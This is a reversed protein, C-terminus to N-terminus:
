KPPDANPQPVRELYFFVTASLVGSAIFANGVIAGAKLWSDDAPLAWVVGVGFYIIAGLAVLGSTSFFEQRVLNVSIRVAEIFRGERLALGHVVFMLYFVIWMTVMMGM